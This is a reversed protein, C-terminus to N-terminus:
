LKSLKNNSWDCTTSALRVPVSEASVGGKGRNRGQKEEGGWGIEGELVVRRTRVLKARVGVSM